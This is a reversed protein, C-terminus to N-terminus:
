SYQKAEESLLFKKTYRKVWKAKTKALVKKITEENVKM